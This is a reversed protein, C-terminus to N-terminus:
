AKYEWYGSNVVKDLLKTISDKVNDDIVSSNHIISYYKKFHQSVSKLIQTKYKLYIDRLQESEEVGLQKVEFVSNLFEQEITTLLYFNDLLFALPYTLALTGPKIGNDIDFIDDGIQYLIGISEGIQELEEIENSSKDSKLGYVFFPFRMFASTKKYSENLLWDTYSVQMPKSVVFTDALQAKFMDIRMSTFEHSIEPNGILEIQQEALLMLIIAIHDAKGAGSINNGLKYHLATRGGDRTTTSDIVDDIILTAQHFLEIAVSIRYYEEQTLHKECLIHLFYSRVRKSPFIQKELVSKIEPQLGNVIHLMRREIERKWVSSYWQKLRMLEVM